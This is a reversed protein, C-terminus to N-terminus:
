LSDGRSLDKEECYGSVTDDWGCDSDVSVFMVKAKLQYFGISIENSFRILHTRDSGRM